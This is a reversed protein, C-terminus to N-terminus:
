IEKVEFCLAEYEGRLADRLQVTHKECYADVSEERGDRGRFTFRVHEKELLQELCRLQEEGLDSYTFGWTRVRRLVFRHLYGMEDLGSGGDMLDETTLAVPADAAPMPVGDVLHEFDLQRTTKEM